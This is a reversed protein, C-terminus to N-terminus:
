NVSKFFDTYSELKTIDQSNMEEGYLLSLEAIDQDFKGNGALTNYLVYYAM